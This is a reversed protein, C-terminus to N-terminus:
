HAAGSEGEPTEDHADMWAGGAAAVLMLTDIDFRKHCLNDLAERLTFFGGFFYAGLYCAMPLWAPTAASLKELLFGSLLLAGSALSFLLESNDGFLGGHSPHDHTEAM